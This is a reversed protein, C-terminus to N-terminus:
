NSKFIITTHNEFLDKQRFVEKLGEIEGLYKLRDKRTILLFENGSRVKNVIQASDLEPITEKDYFVFGANMRGFYYTDGKNRKIIPRSNQIPNSKDLDPLVLYIICQFTLIFGLSMSLISKAIKDKQYFYFALTMGVAPLILWLAHHTLDNISQDQKIGIYGAVPLLITIIIGLIFSIFTSTNKSLSNELSSLYNGIVIALFPLSPSIYSPLITQSFLFFIIVGSGISLCYFLVQNSFRSKWVIKIGQPLFISFPLLAAIAIVLASLPFGGHGEMTSTFREVNHKLFFEELWRGDTKAGVLYYWPSVVCFVILIGFWPQFSKIQNWNFKRSFILFILIGLAPLVVSIPGKSLFALSLSLYGGIMFLNNSNKSAEYLLFCGLTLFFILYPDPVALHFQVSILFSSLLVLCSYFATKENVHSKSFFFVTLVTLIGMLASFFRASFPTAGGFVKYSTMMFYYHLPPKDTRLKGNFTPIILDERNLMEKACTANKSEDLIYISVGWINSYFVIVSLVILIVIRSRTM